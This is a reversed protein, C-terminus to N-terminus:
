LAKPELYDLPHGDLDLRVAVVLAVELSFALLEVVDELLELFCFHISSVPRVVDLAGKRCRTPGEPDYGRAEVVEDDPPQQVPSKVGYSAM